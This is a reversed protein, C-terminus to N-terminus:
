LQTQPHSFLTAAPPATLRGRWQLAAAQVNKLSSMRLRVSTFNPVSSVRLKLSLLSLLMTNGQSASTANQQQLPQNSHVQNATKVIQALWTAVQKVTSALVVIKVNQKGQIVNTNEPAALLACRPISWLTSNTIRAQQELVVNANVNSPIRAQQKV